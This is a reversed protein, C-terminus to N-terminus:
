LDARLLPNLDQGAEARAACGILKVGTDTTAELPQLMDATRSGFVAVVHDRLRPLGPTSVVVTRAGTGTQSTQAVPHM